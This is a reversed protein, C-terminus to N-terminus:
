EEDKNEKVTEKKTTRSGEPTEETEEEKNVEQSSMITIFFTIAM